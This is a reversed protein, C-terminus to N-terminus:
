ADERTPESGAVDPWLSSKATRGPGAALIARDGAKGKGSLDNIKSLKHWQCVVQKVM